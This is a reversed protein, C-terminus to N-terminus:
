KPRVLLKYRMYCSHDYEDASSNAVKIYYAKGKSMKKTTTFSQGYNLKEKKAMAKQSSDLLSVSAKKGGLSYDFFKVIVQYNGTKEPIFKYYDTDTEFYELARRTTKNVKVTEAKKPTKGALDHICHVYLKYKGTAGHPNSIIMYYWSNPKLDTGIGVGYCDANKKLNKKNADQFTITVTKSFSSNAFLYLEYSTSNWDKKYNSTKFKYYVYRQSSKLTSTYETFYDTKLEVAKSKSAGGTITKTAILESAAAPMAMAAVIMVAMIAAALRKGFQKM